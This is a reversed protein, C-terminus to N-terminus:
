SVALSPHASGGSGTFLASGHISGIGSNNSITVVYSTQNQGFNVDLNSSSGNAIITASYYTGGSAMLGGLCVEVNCFQGEGYFALQLKAFGYGLGTITFAKNAGNAISITGSGKREYINRQQFFDIAQGAILITHTSSAPTGSKLGFANQSNSNDARLNWHNAKANFFIGADGSNATGEIEIYPNGDKVHLRNSPTAVNIGVNGGSIHSAGNSRLLVNQATGNTRLDLTGDGDSSQSFAANRVGNDNYVEFANQTSDNSNKVNFQGAGNTLGIHVKGSKDIRVREASQVGGDHTHFALFGEGTGGVGGFEIGQFGSNTALNPGNNPDTIGIYKSHTVNTSARALSIGSVSTNGGDLELLNNPSSTGIGVQGSKSIRVKESSLVGTDHCHIAVYGEDTSGPGGFEIGQFGSNTGISNENGNQCIGIYRSATLTGVGQGLSIGAVTGNAGVLSLLSGPNTTNIGVNMGAISLAPNFSDNSVATFDIRADESGNSVDTAVAAIRAFTNPNGADDDARFDLRGIADNDAPSGSNRFLEIIPGVNADSDTSEVLLVSTNGAGVIHLPTSPSGTGIGIRDNGADVKFLNTDADGEIRFDVNAGTDNFVVESNSIALRQTGGTGITITTPDVTGSEKMLPTGGAQSGDHVVLTKKTTDVTVERLAGTFSNHETTTGGRLQLQDPM